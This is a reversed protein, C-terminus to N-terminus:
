PSNVNPSGNCVSDGCSLPHGIRQLPRGNVLVTSSGVYTGGHCPGSPCCHVVRSDGNRIVHRGNARVNPSWSSPVEPPWCSHGCTMDGQRTVPPM